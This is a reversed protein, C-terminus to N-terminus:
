EISLLDICPDGLETTDAYFKSSMLRYMNDFGEGCMLADLLEKDVIADFQDKTEEKLLAIDSEQNQLKVDDNQEEINKNIWAVNQLDTADGVIVNM